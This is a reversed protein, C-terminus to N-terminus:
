KQSHKFAQLAETVSAWRTQEVFEPTRNSPLPEFVWKYDKNLVDRGAVVAWLFGRREIYYFNEPTETPIKYKFPILDEVKIDDLNV